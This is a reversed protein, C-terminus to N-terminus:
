KLSFNVAVTQVSSVLEGNKFEPLWKPMKYILRIAEAKLDKDKSNSIWVRNIRGNIDVVFNVLVTGQINNQRSTTPYQLNTRIYKELAEAGGPYSAPMDVEFYQILRGTKDYCKGTELEGNKYVDTRRPIGNDWYFNLSGNKKGSLVYFDKSLQGNDHWERYRGEIKRTMANIEKQSFVKHLIRDATSDKVTTNLNAKLLYKESRIKGSITYIREIVKTTDVPDPSLIEYNDCFRKAPVIKGTADYYTTDQRSLKSLWDTKLVPLKFTYRATSTYPVPEGDYSGSSWNPMTKLVRKVESELLPHDSKITRLNGVTGDPEINIAIEVSGEISKELAEKPYVIHEKLYETVTTKGDDFKGTTAFPYVPVEKGSRDFCKTVITNGQSDRNTRKLQGNDWYTIMRGKIEGNQFEVERRLQGNEYWVRRLGHLYWSHGTEKDKYYWHPPKKFNLEPNDIQFFEEKLKGSMYFYNIIKRHENLPDTWRVNYQIAQDSSTLNNGKADLYLTDKIVVNKVEFLKTLNNETKTKKGIAKLEKKTMEHELVFDSLAASYKKGGQLHCVGKDTLFYPNINEYYRKNKKTNTNDNQPDNNTEALFSVGLRLQYKRSIDYHALMGLPTFPFVTQGEKVFICGKKFGSYSALTGDPHEILISNVRSTYSKGITTDMEYTDIVSVVVGKRIACATDRDLSSFEFAKMKRTPTEGFFKERLDTLNSVSLPSGKRFPLAYVFSTDIAPNPVGRLYSTSYTSFGFNKDREILNVSFLYGSYGNIVGKFETQSLNNADNIKVFVEYSGETNKTYSFNYGKLGNRECTVKIAQNQAKLTLHMGLLFVFIICILKTTKKM